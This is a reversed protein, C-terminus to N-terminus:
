ASRVVATPDHRLFLSVAEVRSHVGLKALLSKVHSRVTAKSIRLAEAVHETSAGDALFRLVDLERPTLFLLRETQPYAGSHGREGNMRIEHGLRTALQQFQRILSLRSRDTLSEWRMVLASSLIALDGLARPVEGWRADAPAQEPGWAYLADM